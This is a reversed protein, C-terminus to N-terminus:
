SNSCCSKQRKVKAPDIITDRYESDRLEVVKDKAKELVSRALATYM